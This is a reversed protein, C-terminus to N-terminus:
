SEKGSMSMTLVALVLLGLAIPTLPSTKLNEFILNKPTGREILEIDSYIKDVERRSNIHPLTVQSFIIASTFFAIAGKVVVPLYRELPKDPKQNVKSLAAVGPMSGILLGIVTASFFEAGSSILILSFAYNASQALLLGLFSSAGKRTVIEDNLYNQVDLLHRQLYSEGSEPSTDEVEETEEQSENILEDFDKM